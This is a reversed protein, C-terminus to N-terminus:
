LLFFMGSFTYKKRSAELSTNCLDAIQERREYSPYSDEVFLEELMELQSHQFVFRDHRAVRSLLQLIDSHSPVSASSVSDNNSSSHIAVLKKLTMTGHKAANAAASGLYIVFLKIAILRDRNCQLTM